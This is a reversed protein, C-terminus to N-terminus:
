LEKWQRDRKKCKNNGPNNKCYLRDALQNFSEGSKKLSKMKKLGEPSLKINVRNDIAM